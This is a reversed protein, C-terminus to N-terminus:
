GLLEIAEVLARVELAQVKAKLSESTENKEVFCRKQVLIKGTDVEEEVLHVSCGSECNGDLLVAEHVKIDMLGAYKPLLSPHVNIIQNSWKRTLDGSLIQMFGLLIVLDIHHERLIVDLSQGYAERSIGKSPLYVTPIGLNKARDLILAHARDSLVLVIEVPLNKEQLAQVLPSLNTGRTSGLVAIRYSM